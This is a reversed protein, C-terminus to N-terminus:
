HMRLGVCARLLVLVDVKSVGGSRRRCEGFGEDRIGFERYSEQVRKDEWM